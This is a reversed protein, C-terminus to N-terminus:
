SPSRSTRGSPPASSRSPRPEPRSPGCPLRERRRYWRGRPRRGSSAPRPRWAACPPRLAGPSPPPRGRGPGRWRRGRRRDAPEVDGVQFQGGQDRHDVWGAVFGLRGDPVRLVGVDPHPHDGAVVDGGAGGDGLLQADGALRHEAGLEGREAFLFPQGADVVDAHDAPDCGLVLHQQDLGQLLLALDDGHGAVADVVCGRDLGGVDADGHAGAGLDRLVGAPHDQGVVVEGGDHARDFLPRFTKSLRLLNM